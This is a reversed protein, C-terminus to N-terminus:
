NSVRYQGKLGSDEPLNITKERALDTLENGTFNDRATIKSEKLIVIEDGIQDSSPKVKIQFSIEKKPSIVGAGSSVNGVIWSITNTRESYEFKENDPSTKGTFFVGTPLASEVKVNSIDNSVNTIKWHITFTTEQNVKPPIPGSNPISFDNYYGLTDLILKSNLKIDMKNGAIIKNSHVPTPVDPSDIKSVSSIVYNKDNAGNVPIVSKVKISFKINGSQGPNLSKLNGYDQSKWTITKTSEDFGGKGIQLSAYDLVPSDINETIIVDRMGVNGTNKYNIEFLLTDGANASLSSQGNVTQSIVLPSAVIKSSADEENYSIFMEGKTSGIYVKIPKIQDKEGDLKGNIILKGSQGVLVQGIYWINNGELSKPESNSYIFGDPFDAKIKVSDFSDSGLNRYTILYNIEDGASVIQPATIELELASSAIKIGLENKSIFQRSGFGSSNYTMEGKLYIFAGKPVHARGNLIVKGDSYSKIIGLDFVGSTPSELKFNPNEEPSFSEPFTIKLKANKLEARNENKYRVEYTLMQGSKAENPGSVTVSVKEKSFSSAKYFYFSTLILVLLVIFGFAIAGFKIAKRKEKKFELGNEKWSDQDQNTTQSNSIPASNEPDYESKLDRFSSRDVNKKYLTKKIDDLSM